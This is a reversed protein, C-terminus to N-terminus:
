DNVPKAAGTSGVCCCPRCNPILPLDRLHPGADLRLSLRRSRAPSTHEYTLLRRLAIEGAHTGAARGTPPVMTQALYASGKPNDAWTMPFAEEPDLTQESVGQMLPSAKDVIQYKIPAELTYDVQGHKQGRGGPDRVLGPGPRLPRRAPQGARRRAERADLAAKEEATM